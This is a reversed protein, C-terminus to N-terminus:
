KKTGKKIIGQVPQYYDNSVPESSILSGNEYISKVVKVKFGNLAKQEIITQGLPINPDDITKVTANITEYVENTVSYTRKTLESNSYLNFYLNRNQTYGEIFIPYELTNKFSYDINGWDVTADLGLAVYSSPLTHHVRQTSKVSTKLMANYLTSSVQCIGGGLGSEIKNGIIVPAEKYGRAATREGVIENFSFTDGPMLVKGNIAKTSLEINYARESSSTQYNTTFSSIKTDITALKDATVAAKVEEIPAKITINKGLEGNIGDLIQKQLQESQLKYGKVDPSIKFKGSSIMEIEANVPKKNIDKEMLQIVEGVYKADSSFKLELKREVPNKILKYKKFMSLNKGYSLAEDVVSDINYKASLKSYDITYVKNDTTIDVKKKLIVEGYKSDLIKKAEMLSLGGLNVNEVALGPYILNEWGKVKQYVYGTYTSIAGLLVIVAAILSLILARKIKAAKKRNRKRM